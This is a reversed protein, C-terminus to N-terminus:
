RGIRIICAPACPAVSTGTLTAASATAFCLAFLERQLRRSVHAATNTRIPANALRTPQSMVPQSLSTQSVSLAIETPYM